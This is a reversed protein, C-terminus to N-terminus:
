REESRLQKVSNTDASYLIEHAAREGIMMTAANTNGSPLSPMVSADSIRLGEIDRVRLQPDVVAADGSGMACTGVPHAGNTVNARVFDLWDEETRCARELDFQDAVFDRMAPEAMIRRAEAMGNLLDRTDAETGLLHHRIVPSAQPDCNRLEVRGRHRPHLFNTTVQLGAKRTPQVKVKGDSSVVRETSFCGFGIQIDPSALADSSKHIVQAQYVTAALLGERHIAYQVAARLAGVPGLENITPVRSVWRQMVAPHEQLNRGVGPVNAHLEIGLDRLHEAPGIGSLLLLRPTALSGAALIVEETCYARHSNGRRRYEVGIVRRGSFILGTVYAHTRVTLRTRVDLRRLYERSAQSRLGNRQNVQVRGVGIQRAGNYDDTFVHGATTAAAIFPENAPHSITQYGVSIPGAGGRYESAGGSFNEMRRFDPLVSQYDWGTAGLQAWNDFDAPNGRVFVTANISGGGGLIRGAPWAETSGNRTPDPEPVYKWNCTRYVLPLGAPIAVDPRRDTGGAELVLTRAGAEALRGAVTSGGSGGGVVIYDFSDETM